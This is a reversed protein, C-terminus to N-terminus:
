LLVEELEVVETAEVVTFSIRGILQGYSTRVNVRWKGSEPNSSLSYGRYGSDRGGIIPFEVRAKTQWEGAPENFYQWEHTITTGFGAPAFVSSFAYVSEGPSRHFVQELPLYERYWPSSEASAQYGEGVRVVHHYVEAERLALPLPPIAGSFYLINTLIFIAGISKQVRTRHERVLEPILRHMAGMFLAIVAISVVGSILFMVPGIRNLALPVFVIFFGLLVVFLVSVQFTFQLYRKRFRENAVLLLALIAVSIWSVALTASQSYLVFFGSIMAGFSFQVVVPLFPAVRLLQAHEVRGAQMFNLAFIGSIAITLYVLLAIATTLFEISRFIINDAIFGILLALPAIKEEYWHILEDISQPLYHRIM